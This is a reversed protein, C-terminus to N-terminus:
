AKAEAEGREVEKKAKATDDKLKELQKDIAATSRKVMESDADENKKSELKAKAEDCAKKSECYRVFSSLVSAVTRVTGSHHTQETAADRDTTGPRTRWYCPMFMPTAGSILPEIRAIRAAEDLKRTTSNFERRAAEFHRKCCEYAIQELDREHRQRDVIKDKVRLMRGYTPFPDLCIGDHSTARSWLVYSLGAAYETDGVDGVIRDM